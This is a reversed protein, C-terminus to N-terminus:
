SAAPAGKLPLVASVKPMCRTATRYYSSCHASSKAHITSRTTTSGTGCKCVRCSRGGCAGCMLARIHLCATGPVASAPGVTAADFASYTDWGYETGRRTGCLTTNAALPCTKVATVRLSSSRFVIVAPCVAPTLSAPASWHCLIYVSVRSCHIRVPLPNYCFCLSDRSSGSSSNLSDSGNAWKINLLAYGGFM